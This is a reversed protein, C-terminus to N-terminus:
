RPSISYSDIVASGSASATAEGTAEAVAGLTLGATPPFDGEGDLTFPVEFEENAEGTARVEKLTLCFGGEGQSSDACDAWLVFIALYMYADASRMEPLAPPQVETVVTSTYRVRIRFTYDGPPLGLGRDLGAAGNSWSGGVGGAFPLNVGAPLRDSATASASLGTTEADAAGSADADGFGTHDAYASRGTWARWAEDARAPALLTMLMAACVAAVAVARMTISVEVHGPLM